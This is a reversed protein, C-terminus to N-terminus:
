RLPAGFPAILLRLLSRDGLGELGIKMGATRMTPSRTAFIRDWLSFVGSYNSNTDSGVAHHHVWHISPTVVIARLRREFGPPLRLNSHHFLAAAFLTADFVVVHALPMAAGAILPMRILASCAIEAPHFRGASTTDLHEDLHHPAHLRWLLPMTHYARHAFYTWCDLILFDIALVSWPPYDGRTWLPHSAAFATLPLGILPSAILLFAWLGGNRALRGSWHPAPAAPRLREGAFLVAFWVSPAIAKLLAIAALTM